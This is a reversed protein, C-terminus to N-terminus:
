LPLTQEFIYSIGKLVECVPHSAACVAHEQLKKTTWMVVPVSEWHRLTDWSDHPGCSPLIGVGTM